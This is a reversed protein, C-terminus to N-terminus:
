FELPARTSYVTGLCAELDTGEWGRAHRKLSRSSKRRPAAPRRRGRSEPLVTLRVRRGALTAAHRIIEEWTGELETPGKPM